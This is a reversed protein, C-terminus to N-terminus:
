REGEGWGSGEGLRGRLHLMEEDLNLSQHHLTHGM